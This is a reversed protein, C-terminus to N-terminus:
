LVNLIGNETDSNHITEKKEKIKKGWDLNFSLSFNLSPYNRQMDIVGANPTLANYEYTRSICKEGFLNYSSIGIRGWPFRYSLEYSDFFNHASVTEGWFPSQDDVFVFTLGWRKYNALLQVIYYFDNLDHKYGQGKSFSRNYGVYSNISLLNNFLSGGLMWEAKMRHFSRQNYYSKIFFGKQENWETGEMIPNTYLYSGFTFGTRIPSANWNFDLLNRHYFYSQLAPNGKTIRFNDVQQEVDSLYSLSPNKNQLTYSYRLSFLPSFNYQVSVKPCFKWVSYREEGTQDLDIYSLGVSGMYSLKHFSGSYQIFGYLEQDLMRTDYDYTGTYKNETRGLTYNTGITLTSHTYKKEYCLEAIVSYRRGDVNSSFASLISDQRESFEKYSNKKKNKSYTGVVNLALTNGKSFSRAFYLDLSPRFTKAREYTQSSLAKYRTDSYTLRSVYDNYPTDILSTNAKASFFVNERIYNYILHIAHFNQSWHNEGDELRRLSNERPFNFNQERIHGSYMNNHNIVYSFKWQSSKKNFSGSLMDFGLGRTLTEAGQFSLSGGRETKKTIYNIVAGVDEGYRLGPNDYYEIRQIERPLLATVEQSTADAGNILLKLKEEGFLSITANRADVLIRPLGLRQTIDLGNVSKKVQDDSPLYIQRDVQHLINSASVEVGTLLVSSPLLSLDGLDIPKGIGKLNIYLKEYGLYSISLIGEKEHIHKLYFRGQEDTTIGQVFSSDTLLWVANANEIPEGSVGDQIKGKIWVDQAFLRGTTWLVLLLWRLNRM